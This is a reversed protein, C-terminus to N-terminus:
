SCHGRCSVPVGGAPRALSSMAFEAGPCPKKAELVSTATSLQRANDNVPQHLPSRPAAKVPALLSRFCRGQPCEEGCLPPQLMSLWLSRKFSHLSSCLIQPARSPCSMLHHTAM